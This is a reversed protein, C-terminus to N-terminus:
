KKGLHAKARETGVGVLKVADRLQQATVGLEKTWYELEWPENVNIKAPDQPRRITLNDPM